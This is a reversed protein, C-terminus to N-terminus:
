ADEPELGEIQRLRTVVEEVPCSKSILEVGPDIPTLNALNQAYASYIVTKCGRSHLIALLRRGEEGVQINGNIRRGLDLDLVCLKPSNKSLWALAENYSGLPPLPNLGADKLAEFLETSLFANDEVILTLGPRLEIVECTNM